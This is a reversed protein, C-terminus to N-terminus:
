KKRQKRKKKARKKFYVTTSLGFYDGSVIYDGRTPESVFLNGFQYEGDLLNQFNKNYVLNAQLMFKNFMFYIGTSLVASFQVANDQTEYYIAFIERVENLSSSALEISFDDRSSTIYFIDLGLNTNFIINNNLRKKYEVNIPVSVYVSGYEKLSEEFGNFSEYVDNKSLKFYSNIQPILTFKVGTNFSIKKEKLFHYKIGLQFSTMVKNELVTSGFDRTTSAKEFLIPTIHYGWNSYTKFADLEQSYCYSFAITFILGVIGKKYFIIM